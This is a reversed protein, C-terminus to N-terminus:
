KSRGEYAFRLFAAENQSAHGNASAYLGVHVGTYNFGPLASPSLARADLRPGIARWQRGDGSVEFPLEVGYLRARLQGVGRAAPVTPSATVPGTAVEKRQEGAWQSLRWEPGAAGGHLTLSFAAGEKQIVVLGAEEGLGPSFRLATTASFSSHQQPVGIFSYSTRDAM